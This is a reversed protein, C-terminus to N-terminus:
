STSTFSAWTLQSRLLVHSNLPTPPLPAIPINWDSLAALAFAWSPICKVLYLPKVLALVHHCFLLTAWSSALSNLLALHCLISYTIYLLKSKMRLTIIGGTFPWSCLLSPRIWFSGRAVLYGISKLTPLHLTGWSHFTSSCYSVNAAFRPSVLCSPRSPQRPSPCPSSVPSSHRQRYVFAHCQLVPPFLFCCSGVCLAPSGWCKCVLTLSDCTSNTIVVM